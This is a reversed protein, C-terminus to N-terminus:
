KINSAWPSFPSLIVSGNECWNGNFVQNHTPTSYETFLSIADNYILPFSTSVCEIFSGLTVFGSPKQQKPVFGGAAIAPM